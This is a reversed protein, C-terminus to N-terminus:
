LFWARPIFLSVVFVVYSAVSVCCLVAVSFGGRFPSPHLPPPSLSTKSVHVEGKIRVCNWIVFIHKTWM